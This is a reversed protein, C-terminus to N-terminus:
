AAALHLRVRFPKGAVSSGGSAPVSIQLRSDYYSVTYACNSVGSNPSVLGPTALGTAVVFSFGVVASDATGVYVGTSTNASPMTGSWDFFPGSTGTDGKDGKEGPPGQAGQPGQEGRPGQAGPAGDAGQPGQAGPAGPAGDAGQAGPDGDRGPAGSVGVWQASDGDDYLVSVAGSTSDFWADGAVAGAPSVDSVLFRGPSGKLNGAPTWAM